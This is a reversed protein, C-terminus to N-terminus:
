YSIHLHSRFLVLIYVIHIVDIKTTGNCQQYEILKCYTNGLTRPVSAFLKQVVEKDFIFKRM